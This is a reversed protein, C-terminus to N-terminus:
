DRCKGITYTPTEELEALAILRRTIWHRFSFSTRSNARSDGRRPNRDLLKRMETVPDSGGKTVEHDIM